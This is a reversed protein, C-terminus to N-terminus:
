VNKNHASNKEVGKEVLINRMEMELKLSSEIKM